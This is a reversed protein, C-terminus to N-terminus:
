LSLCPTLDSTDRKFPYKQRVEPKKPMFITKKRSNQSKQKKPGKKAVFLM